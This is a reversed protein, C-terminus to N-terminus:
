TRDQTTIRLSGGDEVQVQVDVEEDEYLDLMFKEVDQFCKIVSTAEAHCGVDPIEVHWHKGDKKFTGRLADPDFSKRLAM